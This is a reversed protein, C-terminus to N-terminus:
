RCGLKVPENGDFRGWDARTFPKERGSLNVAIKQVLTYTPAPKAAPSASVFAVIALILWTNLRPLRHKRALGIFAAAVLTGLLFGSAAESVSHAHVVLRSLAILCGFLIGVSIALARKSPSSNSVALYLLVPALAAFRMAHGSFGTFDLARIGIGWGAFAIKTAAVLSLGGLFLVIWWWALRWAKRGFLWGLCALFVPMTANMDGLRTVLSWSFM